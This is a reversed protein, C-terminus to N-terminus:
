LRTPRGPPHGLGSAARVAGVVSRGVGQNRRVVEPSPRSSPLFQMQMNTTGAYAFVVVNEGKAWNQNFLSRPRSAPPSSPSTTKTQDLFAWLASSNIALAITLSPRYMSSHLAIEKKGSTWDRLRSAFVYILPQIWLNWNFFVSM